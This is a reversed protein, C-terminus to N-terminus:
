FLTEIKLTSLDLGQELTEYSVGIEARDGLYSSLVKIGEKAKLIRTVLDAMQDRHLNVNFGNMNFPIYNAQSAQDVLDHYWPYSIEDYELSFAKFTMKLAEVFTVKQDPKFYKGDEYGIVWKNAKAYCIYKTYWQSAKVDNFCKANDYSDFIDPSQNSNKASGEAIIKLLEARNLIKEPGYTGDPYGSVIGNSSLFEIAASYIQKDDVDSFASAPTTTFFFVAVSLTALFSTFRPKSHNEEM